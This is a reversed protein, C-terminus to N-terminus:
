VLCLCAEYSSGCWSAAFCAKYARHSEARLPGCDHIENTPIRKWLSCATMQSSIKSIWKYDLYQQDYTNWRKQARGKKNQEWTPPFSNPSHYTKTSTSQLLFCTPIDAPLLQNESCQLKYRDKQLAHLWCTWFLLLVKIYKKEQLSSPIACPIWINISNKRHLKIGYYWVRWWCLSVLYLFPFSLQQQGKRRAKGNGYKCHQSILAFWWVVQDYWWVMQDPFAFQTQSVHYHDESLPDYWVLREQILPLM